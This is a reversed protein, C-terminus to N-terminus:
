GCERRDMCPSCDATFEPKPARDLSASGDVANKRARERDLAINRNKTRASERVEIGKRLFKFWWISGRRFLTM